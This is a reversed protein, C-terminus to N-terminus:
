DGRVAKDVAEKLSALTGEARMARASAADRQKESEYWQERINKAENSANLARCLCLVAAFGLALMFWTSWM